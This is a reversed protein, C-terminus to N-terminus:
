RAGYLILVMLATFILAIALTGVPSSPPPSPPAPLADMKAALKALEVKTKALKVEQSVKSATIKAKASQVVADLAAPVTAPGTAPVTSMNRKPIDTRLGAATLVTTKNRLAAVRSAAVAARSTALGEHHLM